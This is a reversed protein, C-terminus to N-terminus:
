AGLEAEVAARRAVSDAADDLAAGAGGARGAAAAARGVPAASRIAHGLGAWIETHVAAGRVVAAAADDLAAVAGGPLGAAAPAQVANAARAPRSASPARSAPAAHEEAAAGRDGQTTKRVAGSPKRRWGRGRPYGDRRAACPPGIAGPASATATAYPARNSGSSPSALVTSPLTPRGPPDM